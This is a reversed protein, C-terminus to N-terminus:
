QDDGKGVYAAYWGLSGRRGGGPEPNGFLYVDAQGPPFKWGLLRLTFHRFRMVYSPDPPWVDPPGSAEVAISAFGLALVGEIAPLSSLAQAGPLRLGIGFQASDASPGWAALLTVVLGVDAALAGLTGFDITFTLAYWGENLPPQDLPANVVEYGLQRPTQGKPGHTLGVLDLPFRAYLSTPRPVSASADFAVDGVGVDFRPASASQDFSMDVALGSFAVYGDGTRSGTQDHSYGFSFLDLEALEHFRLRGSLGFRARVGGGDGPQSALTNFQARDIEVEDLAASRARFVSASPTVFVYHGQAKGLERVYSGLLILNNYHDSALLEVEHGLLRNVFLEIQGAFTAIASNEFLVQLLQVKFDFDGFTHAIDDLSRYDILGFFSSPGLALVRTSTNVDVPTVSLGVHHARFQSADIGAALGLLEQPLSDLPVSANLFIVGTWSPDDCVTHVFYDLPHPQDGATAVQARADAITALLVKRTDARDGAVGEWTWTGSDVLTALSSSALKIVMMTPHEPDASWLGPALRFRWADIVIEFYAGYAVITPIWQQESPALLGQLMTTFTAAGVAPTRGSARLKAIVTAPPREAAPLARLDDLVADTIWYSLDFAGTLAAADRAVMFLENTQFAQRLASRVNNFALAPPDPVTAPIATLSLRNWTQLDSSLEVLLGQPTVAPVDGAGASAIVATAPALRARREPALVQAELEDYLDLADDSVGAYPPMPCAPTSAGVGGAAVELYELYPLLETSGSARIRHLAGDVPQAYYWAQQATAPVVAPWPSTALSDLAPPQEDAPPAGFRAAYADGGAVFNMQLGTMSSVGFYETGALGCALRATAV